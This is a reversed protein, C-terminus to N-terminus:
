FFESLENVRRHSNGPLMLQASSFTSFIRPDVAGTNKLDNWSGYTFAKKDHTMLAYREFLEGLAKVTAEKFNRGQGTAVVDRITRMSVMPIIPWGPIPRAVTVAHLIKEKALTQIIKFFRPHIHQLLEPRAKVFLEKGFMKELAYSFSGAASALFQLAPPVPRFPDAFSLFYNELYKGLREVRNFSYSADM